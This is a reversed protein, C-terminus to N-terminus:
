IIFHSLQLKALLKSANNMEEYSCLNTWLNELVLLSLIEFVDELKM